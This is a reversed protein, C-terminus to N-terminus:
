GGLESALWGYVAINIPEGNRTTQSRLLGEQTVNLRALLSRMLVNDEFVFMAIKGFGLSDFAVHAAEEIAPLTTEHGWFEPKKFLCHGHCVTESVPEIIIVGGLVGDRLVAINVTQRQRQFEVFEHQDKPAYDDAILDWYDQTWTWVLPWDGDDFASLTVAAPLAGATSTAM